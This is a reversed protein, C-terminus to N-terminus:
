EKGSSLPFPKDKTKSFDTSYFGPGKFNLGFSTYQRVVTVDSRCIPCVPKLGVITSFTAVVIFPKNCSKCVFQYEM